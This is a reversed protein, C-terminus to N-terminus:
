NFKKGSGVRVTRSEAIRSRDQASLHQIKHTEMYRSIVGRGNECEHCLVVKQRADKTLTPQQCWECTRYNLGKIKAKKALYEDVIQTRKETSFQKESEAQM